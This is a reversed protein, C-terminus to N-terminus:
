GAHWAQLGDDGVSVRGPLGVPSADLSLLTALLDADAMAVKGYVRSGDPTLGIVSATAPAGDRDFVVSFTEIRAPGAYAADFAPVPGRRAEADDQVDKPLMLNAAATPASGVVLAHHKTVYGGQGYLLASTAPAARLSRVMACASQLMYCNLGAGAFSLGGTVSLPADADLGLTRRAMKPVTPFCSYLEVRDFGGGNSEAIRMAQALVADQAVSHTFQDRALYDMPEA